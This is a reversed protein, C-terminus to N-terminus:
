ISYFLHILKVIYEQEELSIEFFCPIRLLCQSVEDTVPLTYREKAFKLGMPSSHLPIYHFVAMVGNNKLFSILRTREELSETMLYFMHANHEIHKPIKAIRFKGKEALHYLKEFYFEWVKMRKSTIKDAEELQALLFAATLESAVYSSGLDVWTYKDVMGRFFLSRNTGKEQIIEARDILSEDNVLLAGGEGSIFNKTEHFSICSLHGISGLQHNRYTSCLGQAADEIVILGYKSAINMIQDMECPVGAYHVPVIAKTKETIADEIKDPDINKSVPDIDVFVLIAGRLIFASATSVFTFSPLIVEDGVEIGALIASMELAATASHVLLAKKARTKEELWKCCKKSFRGSGSLHGNKVAEEIYSLERGM